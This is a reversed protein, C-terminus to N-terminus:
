AGGRAVRTCASKYAGVLITVRQAASLKEEDMVRPVELADLQDHISNFEASALNCVRVVEDAQAKTLSYGSM